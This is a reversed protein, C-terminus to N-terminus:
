KCPQKLRPFLNHANEYEIHKLDRESFGDYSHLGKVTEATLIEPAFPYDTGFLIQEPEVLERLTRFVYPNASLGTDYYLRKLYYHVGRPVAEGADPLVFQGLSIRWTLYPLAGGAHAFIWRINPYKELVGKYLLNFIVRATEFAVEMLFSPIEKGLPNGSLPETPHVYVVANRKNLEAYVETYHNDGIYAGEHNSLVAIGDLHLIDLAHSIEELSFAIDPLPLSAFAGFRLPHNSIMKASAENSLRALKKAFKSDGFYVGPSSISTIATQIGNADMVALSKEVSWEPFSRGLSETIGARKLETLYEGPIFHHHVDVRCLGTNM